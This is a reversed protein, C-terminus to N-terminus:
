FKMEKVNKLRGELVNTVQKCSTLISDSTSRVIQLTLQQVVEDPIDEDDSDEEEVKEYSKEADPVLSEADSKVKNVIEVIEEGIVKLKEAAHQCSRIWSPQTDSSLKGKKRRRRRQINAKTENIVAQLNTFLLVCMSYMETCLVMRKVTTPDIRLLCPPIKEALITIASNRLEEKLFTSPTKTLFSNQFTKMLDQITSTITQFMESIGTSVKADDDHNNLVMNCIRLMRCMTQPYKAEQALQLPTAEPGHFTYTIFTDPLSTCLSEFEDLLTELKSSTASEDNSTTHGNVQPASQHSLVAHTCLVLLERFRLWSKEEEFSAAVEETTVQKEPVNIDTIVSYDRDDVLKDFNIRVPDVMKLLSTVPQDIDGQTFFDMLVHATKTIASHISCDIHRRYDVFETIKQFTGNRFCAILCEVSEKNNSLYFSRAIQYLQSAPQFHGLSMVNHCVLYGLTNQQMHKIELSDYLNACPTFVGLRCYMRILMIKIEYNYQSEKLAQELIMVCRWLLSTDDTKEYLDILLRIANICYYDVIYTDTSPQDDCFCIGDRYRKLLNEILKLKEEDTLTEHKGLFRTAEVTFIHRHFEKQKRKNIDPKLKAPFDKTVDDFTFTAQQKYLEELFEDLEEEPLLCFYPKLDPMCCPKTSFDLAYELLLQKISVQPLAIDNKEKQRSKLRKILELRMLYPGRCKSEFLDNEVKVREAVFQCAHEVKYDPEMATSTSPKEDEHKPPPDEQDLLNFFSGLYGLVYNWVDAKSELLRKYKANVVSWRKLKEELRMGLPTYGAVEGMLKKGLTGNVVKLAEEHKGLLDLVLLYLRVEAEAEIKGNDIHKQIMKEALPLYMTQALRKDSANLAQLVIAMIGWFLYPNKPIQKYLIMAVRQMEQFKDHRVYSMFLHSLFEENQPCKQVAKEYMPSILETKQCEKYYLSLGQLSNDDVPGQEVVEAALTAAEEVRGLRHLAITKLVKAALLDKQKKLVKEAEHFAKKYNGNDLLEYIPRLRRESISSLGEGSM